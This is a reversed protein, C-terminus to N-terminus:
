ETDKTIEMECTILMQTDGCYWGHDELDFVSNEELFEELWERVDEDCDDMNHDEWCGDFTEILETEYGCDYIDVGEELNPPNDDDTYVTFSGSRWGTEVLLTNGDKTWEQIEVISKKWKPTVTWSVSM